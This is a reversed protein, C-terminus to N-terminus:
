ASLGPDALMTYPAGPVGSGDAQRALFQYDPLARITATARVREDPDEGVLVRAAAVAADPNSVRGVLVTGLGLCTALLEPGLKSPEQTALMLSVGRSRGQDRWRGILTGIGHAAPGDEALVALEDCAVTFAPGLEDFPRELEFAEIAQLLLNAVLGRAEVPASAVDIVILGTRGPVLDAFSTRASGVLNDLRQDVLLAIKSAPARTADMWDRDSRQVWNAGEHLWVAQTFEDVPAEAVATATSLRGGGGKRAEPKLKGVLVKADAPPLTLLQRLVDILRGEGRRELAAAVLGLRRVTNASAWQFSDDLSRTLRHAFVALGAMVDNIDGENVFGTVDPGVPGGARVVTVLGPDGGQKVWAAALKDARHRDKVEIVVTLGTRASSLVAADAITTKGAGPDAVAFVGATIVAGEGVRNLKGTLKITRGDADRGLLVEAPAGTAVAHDPAPIMGTAAASAATPLTLAISSLTAAEIHAVDRRTPYGTSEYVGTGESRYRTRVVGKADTYESAVNRKVERVGGTRLVAPMWWLPHRRRVVGAVLTVVAAVVLGVAPMTFLGPDVVPNAPIYGAGVYVAAGAGGLVAAAGATRNSVRRMRRTTYNLRRDPLAALWGDLDTREFRGATFRARLLQGSATGQSVRKVGDSGGALCVAWWRHVAKAVSPREARLTAAVWAGEDLELGRTAAARNHRSSPAGAWPERSVRGEYAGNLGLAPEECPAALAGAATALSDAVRQAEGAEAGLVGVYVGDATRVVTVKVARRLFRKPPLALGISPAVGLDPDLVRTARDPTLAFWTATNLEMGRYSAATRSRRKLWAMPQM